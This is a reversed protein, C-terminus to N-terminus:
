RSRGRGGAPKAKNARRTVRIKAKGQSTRPLLHLENRAWGVWRAATPYSVHFHAEVAKVPPEGRVHADKYVLAVQEFHRKDLPRPGPRDRRAADRAVPLRITAERRERPTVDFAAPPKRYWELDKVWEARAQKVMSQLAIGRLESSTLPWMRGPAFRAGIRKPDEGPLFENGIEIRVCEARGEVVAFYIVVNPKLGGQQLRFVSVGEEWPDLKKAMAGSREGTIIHQRLRVPAVSKSVLAVRVEVFSPATAGDRRTCAQHTLRFL